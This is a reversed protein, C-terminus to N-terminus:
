VKSLVFIILPTNTRLHMQDAHWRATLVNAFLRGLVMEDVVEQVPRHVRLFGVGSRVHCEPVSVPVVWTATELRVLFVVALLLRWRLSRLLESLLRHESLANLLLLGLGCLLVHQRGWARHLQLLLLLELMLLLWLLLEGSLWRGVLHEVRGLLDVYRQLLPSWDYQLRLSGAELLLLLLELLLLLLLVVKVEPPLLRPRCNYISRYTYWADKDMYM